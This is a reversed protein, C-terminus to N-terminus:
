KKVARLQARLNGNETQMSNLEDLLAIRQTQESTRMAEVEEKAQRLAEACEALQGELQRRVQEPAAAAEEALTLMKASLANNADTLQRCMEAQDAAHMEMERKEVVAREVADQLERIEDMRYFLILISGPLLISVM